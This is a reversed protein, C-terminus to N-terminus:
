PTLKQARGDKGQEATGLRVLQAAWPVPRGM